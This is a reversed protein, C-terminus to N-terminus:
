MQSKIQYELLFSRFVNWGRPNLTQMYVNDATDPFFQLVEQILYNGCENKEKESFDGSLLYFMSNYYMYHICFFSFEAYYRSIAQELLNRRDLESLYTETVFVGQRIKDTDVTHVDSSPNQFYFYLSKGIKYYNNVLLMTIGSFHIDEYSCNEIFRIDNDVLFNRRYLRGWPAVKDVYRLIIEKRDDESIMQMEIDDETRKEQPRSNFDTFVMYDCEVLDFGKEEAIQFMEEVASLSLRDDADVFMVYDASAYQMGTNRAGGGKGNVLCDVLIISQDYRQEYEQLITLTHDTSADNVLILEIQDFGISQAIISELCVAVYKEVNYCPVIISVKKECM